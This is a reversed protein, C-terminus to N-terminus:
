ANSTFQVHRMKFVTVIVLTIGIYDMIFTIEKKTYTASTENKGHKFQLPNVNDNKM